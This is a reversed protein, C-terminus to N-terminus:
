SERGLWGPSCHCSSMPCTLPKTLQQQCVRQCPLTQLAQARYKGGLGRVLHFAVLLTGSLRRFCSQGPHPTCLSPQESYVGAEKGKQVGGPCLAGGGKKSLRLAWPDGLWRRRRQLIM